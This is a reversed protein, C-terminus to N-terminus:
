AIRPVCSLAIESAKAEFDAADKFAFVHEFPVVHSMANLIGPAEEVAAAFEHVFAGPDAVAVVAVNHYETHRLQGWRALLKRAIRFTPESLTVIVNWDPVAPKANPDGPM